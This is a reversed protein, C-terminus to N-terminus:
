IFQTLYFEDENNKTSKDLLAHAAPGYAPFKSNREAYYAKDAAEFEQVTGDREVLWVFQNREPVKWAKIRFGMSARLPLVVEQFLRAWEDLGGLQMTYIRLQQVM